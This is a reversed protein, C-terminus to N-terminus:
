YFLVYGLRGGLIVGAFVYGLLSDLTETTFIGRRKILEYGIIFGLAYALGYYTPAIRLSYITLEFIPM